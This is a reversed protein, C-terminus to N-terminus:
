FTGNLIIGGFFRLGMKKDTEGLSFGKGPFVEREPPYKAQPFSHRREIYVGTIQVATCIRKPRKLIDWKSHDGLVNKVGNKKDREGLSFGKGPFVEREPPYKAQPFSHRREIYVGTIQVATYIRKPRKLIDM